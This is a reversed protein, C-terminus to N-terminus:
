CVKVVGRPALTSEGQLVNSKPALKKGRIEVVGRPALTDRGAVSISKPTLKRGRIEVPVVQM